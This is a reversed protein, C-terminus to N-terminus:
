RESVQNRADSTKKGSKTKKCNPSSSTALKPTKSPEEETQRVTQPKKSEARQVICHRSLLSTKNSFEYVIFIPSIQTSKSCFQQFNQRDNIAINWYNNLDKCFGFVCGVLDVSARVIGVSVFCLELFPLFVFSIVSSGFTLM